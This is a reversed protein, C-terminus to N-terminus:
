NNYYKRGYASYLEGYKGGYKQAERLNIQTLTLGSVKVGVTQLSHLGEEIQARTTKNWHVAYISADVSQGIVRADPVVLVPPTDILIVDYLRRLEDLFQRFRDSSFFDAANVSSKEGALVDMGHAESHVVAEDLTAEGSM